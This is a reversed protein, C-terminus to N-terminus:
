IRQSGLVENYVLEVQKTLKKIDFLEEVRMRGAYGMRKAVDPNNLLYLIKDSLKTANSPPVLYGTVGDLVIESPGTINTAVVPKSLAMAEICTLPFGEPFTSTPFALVDFISMIKYADERWGTFIVSDSLNSEIVMQRLQKEIEKDILVAEGVILFKIKPNIKNIIEAARIFDDHGKGRTIRGVVGVIGNNVNLNFERRINSTDEIPTWKGIDLGNHIIEIKNRGLFPSYQKSAENTLVIAKNVWRAFFREKKTLTRTDHIHCICPAHTIKSALIAPIGTIISTNIDVLDIKRTRILVSLILTHPLINFLWELLFIIYSVFEGGKYKLSLKKFISIYPVKVIKIGLRKIDQIAPGNFYVVVLPSFTEQNMNRLWELLCRSSGGYGTSPEFYLIRITLASLKEAKPRSFISLVWCFIFAFYPKLIIIFKAIIIENGHAFNLGVLYNTKIASRINKAAELHSKRVFYSTGLLYYNEAIKKKVITKCDADLEKSYNSLVYQWFYVQSSYAKIKNLFTNNSHCRYLALPEDLHKIKYNRAVRICIELDELCSLSENFLGVSDFVSKKFMFTSCLGSGYKILGKFSVGPSNSPKVGEVRNGDQDIIFMNGTILACSSDQEFQLIYKDLKNPLWLDDSDVFAIYEGKSEKIGKNRAASVGLNDQYYYRIKGNYRKLIDKTTDGSGDDVIIIECDKFTQRLVSDIAESIYKARNYTPIIVSIKSM